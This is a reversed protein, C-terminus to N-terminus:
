KPAESITDYFKSICSSGQGVIERIDKAQKWLNNFISKQVKAFEENEM